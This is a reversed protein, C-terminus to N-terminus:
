VVRGKGMTMMLVLYTVFLIRFSVFWAFDYLRLWFGDLEVLGVAAVDPLATTFHDSM